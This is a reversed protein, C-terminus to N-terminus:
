SNRRYDGKLIIDDSYHGVTMERRLILPNSIDSLKTALPIAVNLHIYCLFMPQRLHLDGCVKFLQVRYFSYICPNEIVQPLYTTKV